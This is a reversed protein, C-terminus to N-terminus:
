RQAVVGYGLPFKFGGLAIEARREHVLVTFGAERLLYEMGKRTFRFLDSPEVEDWNTAYTMVLCAGPTLWAHFQRLALLPDPLYQMVQNCMIADFEGQPESSDPYGTDHPVYEGEVLDRYPQRGAGFDLVRGRLYHRQREMFDRISQREIGRIEDGNM